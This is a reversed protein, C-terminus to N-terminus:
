AGVMAHDDVAHRAADRREELLRLERAAFLDERWRSVVSEVTSGHDAIATVGNFVCMSPACGVMIAAVDSIDQGPDAVIENM